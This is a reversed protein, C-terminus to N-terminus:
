FKKSQGFHPSGGFFNLWPLWLPAVIPTGVFTVMLTVLPTVVTTQRAGVLLHLDELRWNIRRIGGYFDIPPLSIVVYAYRRIVLLNKKNRSGVPFDGPWRAPEGGRKTVAHPEHGWPHVFYKKDPIWRKQRIFHPITIILFHSLFASIFHFVNCLVSWM